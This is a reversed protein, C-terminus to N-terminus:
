DSPKANFFPLAAPVKGCITEKGSNRNFFQIFRLKCKGAM